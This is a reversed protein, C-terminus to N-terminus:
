CWPAETRPKSDSKRSRRVSVGGRRGQRDNAGTGLAPSSNYVSLGYGSDRRQAAGTGNGGFFDSAGMSAALPDRPAGYMGGFPMSAVSTDSFASPQRSRLGGSSSTASSDEYGFDFGSSGNGLGHAYRSAPGNNFGHGYPNSAGGGANFSAHPSAFSGSGSFALSPVTSGDSPQASIAPIGSVSRLAATPSSARSGTGPLGSGVPGSVARNLSNTRRLPSGGTGIAAPPSTQLSDNPRPLDLMSSFSVNRPLISSDSPKVSTQWSVPICPNLVLSQM